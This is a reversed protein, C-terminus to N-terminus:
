IATAVRVISGATEGSGLVGSPTSFFAAHGVAGVSLVPVKVGM